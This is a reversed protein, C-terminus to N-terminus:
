RGSVPGAAPGASNPGGTGALATFLLRWLPGGGPAGSIEAYGAPANLLGYMVIMLLAAVLRPPYGPLDSERQAWRVLETLSNHVEALVGSLSQALTPCDAALRLAARLRVDSQLRGALGVVVRELGGSPDAGPAAYEARLNTWTQRSENILAWALSSKSPFHGYLAGKTMGIREAVANLTTSSYGQAAFIEAAATLVKERTRHAREQKAM